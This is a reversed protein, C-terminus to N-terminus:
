NVFLALSLLSKGSTETGYQIFFGSVQCFRSETKVTGRSLTYAAFVFYWLSRMVDGYVLLMILSPNDDTSSDAKKSICVWRHRFLKTMRFFWYFAVISAAVSVGSCVIAVVRIQYIRHLDRAATSTYVSRPHLGMSISSHRTRDIHIITM